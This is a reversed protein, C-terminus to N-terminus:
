TPPATTGAATVPVEVRLRRRAFWGAYASHNLPATFEVRCGSGPQSTVTCM